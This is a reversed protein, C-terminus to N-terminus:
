FVFFAARHRTRLEAACQIISELRWSILAVTASFMQELFKPSASARPGALRQVDQHLGHVLDVKHALYEASRRGTLDILCFKHYQQTKNTMTIIAVVAIIIM